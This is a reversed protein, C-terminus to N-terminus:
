GSVLERIGAATKLGIGRVQALSAEDAMVVREASAFGILLRQALAPGVGALGQFDGCRANAQPRRGIAPEQAVSAITCRAENVLRPSLAEYFKDGERKGEGLTPIEALEIANTGLGTV